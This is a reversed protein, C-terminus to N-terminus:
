EGRRIEVTERPLAEHQTDIGQTEVNLRKRRTLVASTFEDIVFYSASSRGDRINDILYETLVFTLLSFLFFMGSQQLSLTVWGPQLDSRTIALVVVYISYLVNLGAGTLSLLSAIRAPATSNSLLLRVARRM